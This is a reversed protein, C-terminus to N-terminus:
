YIKLRWDGRNFAHCYIKIVGQRFNRLPIDDLPTTTNKDVACFRYCRLIFIFFLRQPLRYLSFHQPRRPRDDLEHNIFPVENRRSQFENMELGLFNAIHSMETSGLRRGTNPAGILYKPLWSMIIYVSTRSISMVMCWRWAADDVAHSYIGTAMYARYDHYEKM